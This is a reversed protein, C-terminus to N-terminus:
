KPTFTRKEPNCEYAYITAESKVSLILKKYHVILLALRRQIQVLFLAINNSVQM